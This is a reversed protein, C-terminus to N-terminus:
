DGLEVPHSSKLGCIDDLFEPRGCCNSVVCVIPFPQSSQIAQMLGGSPSLVSLGLSIMPIEFWKDNLEYM